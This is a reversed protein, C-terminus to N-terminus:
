SVTLFQVDWQRSTVCEGSLSSTVLGQSSDVFSISFPNLPIHITPLIGRAYSPTNPMIGTFVLLDDVLVAMEKVGRDPTKAYNWLKILSVTHVQYPLFFFWGVYEIMKVIFKSTGLFHAPFLIFEYQIM